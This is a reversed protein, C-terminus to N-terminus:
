FPKRKLHPQGAIHRLLTRLVHGKVLPSTHTAM